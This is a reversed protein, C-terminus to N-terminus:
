PLPTQVRTRTGGAGCNLFRFRILARLRLTKPSKQKREDFLIWFLKWESTSSETVYATILLTFVIGTSLGIINVISYFRSKIIHRWALKLYNQFM